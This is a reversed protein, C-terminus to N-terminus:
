ENGLRRGADVEAQIFHKESAWLRSLRLPAPKVRCRVGAAASMCRSPAALARRNGRLRGGCSEQFCSRLYDFSFQNNHNLVESVPMNEGKTNSCWIASKKM